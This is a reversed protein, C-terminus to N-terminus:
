FSYSKVREIKDDIVEQLQDFFIGELTEKINGHTSILHVQYLDEWGLTVFVYGKHHHGRVKMLLGQNDVNVIKSVGWSFWVNLNTRKLLTSTDLVNFERQLLPKLVQYDM